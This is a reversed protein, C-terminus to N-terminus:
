WILKLAFQLQRNDIATSTVTGFNGYLSNDLQVPLLRGTTQDISSYQDVYANPISFVPHNLINFGEFRFQLNLRETIAINKFASFDFSVFNPGRLISRGANGWIASPDTPMKVAAINWWSLPNKLGSNPDLGQVVDCNDQEWGIVNVATDSANLCSVPFGSRAYFIGGIQWAGLLQNVPGSWGQGWRKGHGFPLEYLANAVFNKNVDFASPGYDRRKDFLHPTAQGYSGGDRTASASDLARSWTFSTLFSLGGAFQKQLKAQMSNYNASTSNEFRNSFDSLGPYPPCSGFSGCAPPLVVPQVPAGNQIPPLAFNIDTLHPLHTSASAVYAVELMLNPALEQQIGLSWQQIRPSSMYPDLTFMSPYVITGVTAGEFIQNVVSFESKRILKSARPANRAFDFWPNAIVPSYFIGAGGRIVTNGKGFGPSWSFGFRPSFDTKDSVVLARGFQNGRVFPLYYLSSPNNDLSVGPPFGAYPDGQGPRIVTAPGHLFDVNVIANNTDYWYPAYEYRLGLNLTLNKRMKFDDQVYYGQAWRRLHVYSDGVATESDRSVGLLFSAVSLGGSKDLAWTSNTGFFFNGRAINDAGVNLQERRFVAGAKILHRGKTLSWDDGYEYINDVNQLPHGFASEGLALYNDGSGDFEPQGWDAPNNSTGPIGIQASVNVKFALQGLRGSALRIYNAHFNNVQRPSITWSWQVGVTETNVKENTGAEPLVSPSFSNEQGTSFRGWLNMKSNLIYDIRGAYQNFDVPQRTVAVLNNVLGARNPVPVYQSALFQATSSNWCNQPITQNPWLVDTNPDPNFCGSPLTNNPWFIPTGDPATTHPKYILIPNGGSDIYDTFVGSHANATPVTATSTSSTRDRLSEWGGFFFAKNRVIRGGATAGFQNRQFLPKPSNTGGFIDDFYNKADLASNRFFDYATGHFSNTGSKTIANVQSAGRGFEATYSNSQVKFEQIEDVSPVAAFTNFDPETDTAGNLLFNTDQARAGGVSYQVDVRRGVERVEQFSSAPDKTFTTGPGLTALDLFNRGNLPLDVVHRTDIVQGVTSSETELLPATAKVSVEQSLQGVELTIDVRAKQDVQLEFAPVQSTKFGAKKAKVAYHGPLLGTVAYDGSATTATVRAANTDVNSVTVEVEPVVAGTSDSV